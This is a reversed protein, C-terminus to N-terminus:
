LQKATNHAACCFIPPDDQIQKGGLDSAKRKFVKACELKMADDVKKKWNWFVQLFM